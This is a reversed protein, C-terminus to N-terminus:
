QVTPNRLRERELIAQYQADRQMEHEVNASQVLLQQVSAAIRHAGIDNLDTVMTRCQQTIAAIREQHNLESM